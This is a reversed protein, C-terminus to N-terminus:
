RHARYPKNDVRIHIYGSPHHTGAIVGKWGPRLWTFLGTDPDYHLLEKLRIQTLKSM